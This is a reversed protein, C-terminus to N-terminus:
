AGAQNSIASLIQNVQDFTLNPVKISDVEGDLFVEVGEAGNIEIKKLYTVKAINLKCIDGAENTFDVTSIMAIDGAVTSIISKITDQM